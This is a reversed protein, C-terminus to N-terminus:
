GSKRLPATQMHRVTKESIQGCLEMYRTLEQPQLIGQFRNLERIEPEVLARYIDEDRQEPIDSVVEWLWAQEGEGRIETCKGPAAWIDLVGGQYDGIHLCVQLAKPSSITDRFSFRGDVLTDVAMGRLMQGQPEYLRVVASDPVNEIKGVIRFEGAPVAPACATVAVAAFLLCLLQKM